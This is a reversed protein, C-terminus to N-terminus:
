ADISEPPEFRSGYRQALERARAAFAPPGGPYGTVFQAAGGTWAPYGIGLLSGVNADAASRLVGSEWCRATELAEAFLLRDRLEGLDAPEAAVPFHEALGPWVRQRRGETYDYFGAGAVRGRRGLETLTTLVADGPHEPLSGAARFQGRITLPLSLTVEDLLALTGLPYGAQLSAQEVSHPSVGEGIMAAAEILRQLIVRSTFFGRGDNVVIPTKGLQRAIDFAAALTADSTKEGVVIEILEMREVPSFFHLGIFDEPRTVGGALGTIPLTSTNSALLADPAVVDLVDGFVRHKLEPDEFVAEIVLDAGALDAVETTPTIRALVADASARTRRGAAVQEGLVTRAHERGREATAADVDKLAVRIGVLACALAIGAGMMGAGLVAAFRARHPPLDAPRSAGSRVTRRDLFTGQIINTAIQGTALEVFYRTEVASATAFDVQTSEVAASLINRAAPGPAGRQAARLRATYAPLEAARVAPARDWPQAADRNGRIWALAAPLLAAADPVLEDLLGLERAAAAPFATGPLLVRHLATDLGLLRVTRVVGGGGPLLGLTVEPLGVRLAPDDVAIRHHAALAIELGGGLASGALAAVVPVGATELARLLAKVRDAFATLREADAPGAAHLDHLDGGAFFSRKASTLVIGTCGAPLLGLEAELADAWAATVTNAGRDPDDFTIVAVGSEDHRVTLPAHVTTERPLETM